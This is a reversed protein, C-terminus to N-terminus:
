WFLYPPWVFIEDVKRSYYLVTNTSPFCARPRMICLVFPHYKDSPHLIDPSCAEAKYQLDCVDHSKIREGYVMVIQCYSPNLKQEAPFVYLDEGSWTNTTRAAPISALAKAYELSTAVQEPSRRGQLWGSGHVVLRALLQYPAFFRHGATECQERGAQECPSHFRRATPVPQDNRSYVEVLPWQCRVLMWHGLLCIGPLFEAMLKMPRDRGGKFGNSQLVSRPFRPKEIPFPIGQGESIASDM